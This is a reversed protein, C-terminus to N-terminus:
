ELNRQGDVDIEHDIEEVEDEDDTDTVCETRQASPFVDDCSVGCGGCHEQEVYRMRGDLFTEDVLGDCDNDRGDCVELTCPVSGYCGGLAFLVVLTVASGSWSM